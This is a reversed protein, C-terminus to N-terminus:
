GNKRRRKDIERRMQGLALEVQRRLSQASMVEAGLSVVTDQEALDDTAVVLRFKKAYKAALREIVDDATHSSDTRIVQIGEPEQRNEPQKGRGDFVVVVREGTWDQYAHLLRELETHALGKRQRHLELLDPWAHIINNGDVLLVTTASSASAGM